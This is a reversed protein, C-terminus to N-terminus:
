LECFKRLHQALAVVTLIQQIDHKLLTAVDSVSRPISEPAGNSVVFRHRGSEQVASDAQVGALRCTLASNM